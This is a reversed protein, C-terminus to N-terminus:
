SSSLGLDRRVALAGSTVPAGDTEAKQVDSIQGLAVARLDAVLPPIASVLAQVDASAASPWKFASLEQSWLNLANAFPGARSELEAATKSAKFLARAEDVPAVIKV